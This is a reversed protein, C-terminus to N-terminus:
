QDTLCLCVQQLGANIAGVLQEVPQQAETGNILFSREAPALTGLILQTVNGASILAEAGDSICQLIRAPLEALDAQPARLSLQSCHTSVFCPAILRVQSFGSAVMVLLDALNNNYL